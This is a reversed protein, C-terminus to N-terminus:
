PTLTRPTLTLPTYTGPPVHGLPYTGPPLHGPPLHGSPIHGQPLHGPPVHGPPYYFPSLCRLQSLSIFLISPFQRPPLSSFMYSPSFLPIPSYLFSPLPRLSPPFSPLFSSIHATISLSDLFYPCSYVDLLSVFQISQLRYTPYTSLFLSPLSTYLYICHPPPLLFSLGLLISCTSSLPLHRSKSHPQTLPPLTTTSTTTTPHHHLPPTTYHHPPTTTTTSTTTPHHPPPPPTTTTPHHLPPTTTPHHYHHPPPPQISIVRGALWQDWGPILLGSLDSRRPLLGAVWGVRLSGGGVEGCGWLLAWGKLHSGRAGKMHSREAQLRSSGSKWPRSCKNSILSLPSLILVVNIAVRPSTQAPGSPQTKNFTLVKLGPHDRGTPQRRGRKAKTPRRPFPTVWIYARKHSGM